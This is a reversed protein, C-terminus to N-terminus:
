VSVVGGHIEKHCNSCVLIFKSYDLKVKFRFYLTEKEEPDIHHLELAGIYRNYGCIVCGGGLNKIHKAIIKRKRQLSKEIIDRKHTKYYRKQRERVKKPHKKRYEKNQKNLKERWKPDSAYHERRKKNIKNKVQKWRKRALLNRRERNKPNSIYQRYKLRSCERCYFGLGDKRSKDKKFDTEPRTKKCNPCVKSM